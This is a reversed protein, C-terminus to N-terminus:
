ARVGARTGFSRNKRKGGDDARTESKVRATRKKGKSTHDSKERRIYGREEKSVLRKGGKV